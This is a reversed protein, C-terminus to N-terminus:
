SAHKSGAIAHELAAVTGEWSYLQPASVRAHEQATALKKRDDLYDTIAATIAESDASSLLIGSAGGEILDEAIGVNTAIIANGCIAAELMANGFGESRSALCLIDSELLLAAVDSVDLKGILTVNSPLSARIKEELPGEGAVIVHVERERDQLRKAAEILEMVGKEPILRGMYAVIVKDHGLSLEERFSRMSAGEIFASAHIANPMEGESVVGFTSLWGSSRKSIGFFRPNYRKLIATIGHEYLKVFVDLVPNCFTLYNSGHDIVLAQLGKRQAYRAGELSHGYFRTNVVVAECDLTDLYAVLERYRGNKKPVPLRGNLLPFCPLRVVEIGESVEERDPLDGLNSTVIVAHRGSKVLATALGETFVEVGGVHPLYQASFIVITRSDSM